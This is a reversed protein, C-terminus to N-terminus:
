SGTRRLTAAALPEASTPAPAPRRWVAPRTKEYQPPYTITEGLAAAAHWVWRPDDLFGRGVAIMDADGRAIIDNALLPDSIYGVARTAIGAERRVHAALSAMYGPAYPIPAKQVIGGSTICVYDCGRAKLEAAFRCADAITLGGDLWDTGTIRAGLPKTTPWSARVSEFVRLPFRMRNELTGGFADNRRNAIPSLFSHLLYGHATHLEALDFGIRAARRTAATFSEVIREMDDAEIASPAPGHEDFAVASPSITNWAGEPPTLARGGEWPRQSSGKRGAHSLQIGLRTNGLKGCAAVVRALAGEHADSWLGLCGHSIRGDREVATSEVMVLGANSVALTGLHLMHWDNAYGDTASHQCMPSVVIRNDITLDRLRFPSFLASPM